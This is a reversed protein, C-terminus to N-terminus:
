GRPPSCGARGRCRAWGSEARPDAVDGQLEQGAQDAREQEREDADPQDDQAEVLEAARDEPREEGPAAAGVAAEGLLEVLEAREGLARAQDRDAAAGAQGRQESAHLFVGAVDDRDDGDGVVSSGASPEALFIADQRRSVDALAEGREGLGLRQHGLQELVPEATLSREGTVGEAVEEDGGHRLDGAVELVGDSLGTPDERHAALDDRGREAVDHEARGRAALDPDALRLHGVTDLLDVAHEELRRVGLDVGLGLGRDQGGLQDDDPRSREVRRDQGVEEDLSHDLRQAGARRHLDVDAVDGALGALRHPVRHALVQLGDLVM